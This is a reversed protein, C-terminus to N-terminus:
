ETIQSLKKHINSLAASNAEELRQRDEPEADRPRWGDSNHIELLRELGKRAKVNDKQPLYVLDVRWSECLEEIEIRWLRKSKASIDTERPMAEARDIYALAEDFNGAKAARDAKRLLSSVLMQRGELTSNGKEVARRELEADIDESVRRTLEANGIYRLERPTFGGIIGEDSAVKAETFRPSREAIVAFLAKALLSDERLTHGGVSAAYYAGDKDVLSITLTKAQAEANTGYHFTLTAEVSGDMKKGEPADKSHWDETVAEEFLWTANPHRFQYECGVFLLDVAVVGQNPSDAGHKTPEAIEAFMWVMPFLVVAWRGCSSGLGIM